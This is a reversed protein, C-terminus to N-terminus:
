THQELQNYNIPNAKFNMKLHLEGMNYEKFEMPLAFSM